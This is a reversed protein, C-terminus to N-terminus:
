ATVRSDSKIPPQGRSRRAYVDASRARNIYRVGRRHGQTRVSSKHLM